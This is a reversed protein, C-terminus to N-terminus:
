CVLKSPELRVKLQFIVTEEIIKTRDIKIVNGSEDLKEIRRLAVKGGALYDVHYVWPCSFHCMCSEQQTGVHNQLQRHGRISHNRRHAPQLFRTDFSVAACGQSGRADPQRHCVAPATEFSPSLTAKDLKWCAGIRRPPAHDVNVLVSVPVVREVAVQVDDHRALEDGEAAGVVQAGVAEGVSAALAAEHHGVGLAVFGGSDYGPEGAASGGQDQDPERLRVVDTVGLDRFADAFHSPSFRRQGRADSFRDPGLDHPSGFAILKGPVVVNLDGNLPDDWHAYEDVDIMGWRAPDSSTPLQVFGCERGRELGRWCDAMTLGICSAALATGRYAKIRSEELWSMSSVVADATMSLKLIMYAGLLFAAHTMERTGPHVMYVIKGSPFDSKASDLLEVFRAVYDFNVPGFDDFFSDYKLELHPQFRRFKHTSAFRPINQGICVGDFIELLFPPATSM